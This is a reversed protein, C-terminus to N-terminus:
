CRTNIAKWIEHVWAGADIPPNLKYFRVCMFNYSDQIVSDWQNRPSDPIGYGFERALRKAGDEGDYISLLNTRNGMITDFLVEMYERCSEIEGQENM